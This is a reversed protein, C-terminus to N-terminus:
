AEEEKRECWVPRPISRKRGTASVDVVRRGCSELALEAPPSTCIGVLANRPWREMRLAGCGNCVKM